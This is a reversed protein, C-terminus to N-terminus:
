SVRAALLWSERIRRPDSTPTHRSQITFGSVAFFQEAAEWSEFKNEDVRHEELFRRTRPDEEIRPDPASRVYIDATIWVGGRELLAGRVHSALRVKEDPDLYMLLGENVIAIPGDPLEAVVRRFAAGDLADLAILRLTGVLPGAGLAEIVRTKTEIMAPLDSDVYFVPERRALALGRFSLGGGIELIRTAGAESLLRDVSRYRAEFHRLRLDAGRRKSSEAVQSAVAEAGVLVEAAERAFPIGTQSKLVLLSVASPSITSFDRVDSM